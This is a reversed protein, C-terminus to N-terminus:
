TALYSHIPKLGLSPKHQFIPPRGPQAFPCILCPPQRLQNAHRTHKQHHGANSCPPHKGPLCKHPNSGLAIFIIKPQALWPGFNYELFDDAPSLDLERLVSNQVQDIKELLSQAAHFYGGMNGEILGWIQTKFQLILDFTNYYGRTRLIAKNKPRIKSLVQEVASHMRLDVDVMCGLLKFSETFSESPHLIM